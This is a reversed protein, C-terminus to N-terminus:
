LSEASVFRSNCGSQLGHRKVVLDQLAEPDIVIEGEKRAQYAGFVADKAILATAIVPDPVKIFRHGRAFNEAVSIETTWSVRHVRPGSCGRYIRIPNTLSQFWDSDTKRLLPVSRRRTDHRRLDSVLRDSLHETGDCHTWNAHFVPWFIISPQYTLLALMVDLRNGSQVGGGLLTQNFSEILQAHTGPCDKEQIEAFAEDMVHM